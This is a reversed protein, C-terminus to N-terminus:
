YQNASFSLSSNGTKGPSSWAPSNVLTGQYGNGSADHAITGSGENFGYAAILGPSLAPTIPSSPAASIMLLACAVLLPLVLRIDSRTHQRHDTTIIPRSM